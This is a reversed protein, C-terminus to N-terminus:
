RVTAPVPTPRPAAPTAGPKPRLLNKETLKQILTPLNAVSVDVFADITKQQNVDTFTSVAQDVNGQGSPTATPHPVYEWVLASLGEYDLAGSGRHAMASIINRQSQAVADRGIRLTEPSLALTEDGSLMWHDGRGNQVEVGGVIAGSTDKHIDQNLSDHALRVFLSFFGEQTEAEQSSGYIIETLSEPNMNNWWFLASDKVRIQYNQLEPAKALIGTAVNDTFVSRNVIHVGPTGAAKMSAKAKAMTDAKNILHGASFADTLFHDAFANTEMAEDTKGALALNLAQFHLMRWMARHDTPAGPQRPGSAPAFHAANKSAMDTYHQGKPLGATAQEWRETNVSGPKAIDDDIAKKLETLVAAPAEQMQRPSEFFDGMAIMEGYTLSVGNVSYSRQTGPEGGFLAHEGAEYRQLAFPAIVPRLVHTV